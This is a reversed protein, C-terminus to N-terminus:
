NQNLEDFGLHYIFDKELEYEEKYNLLKIYINLYNYEYSVM